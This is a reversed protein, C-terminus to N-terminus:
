AMTEGDAEGITADGVVEMEVDADGQAASDRSGGDRTSTSAGEGAKGNMAAAAAAGSKDKRRAGEVPAPDTYEDNVFWKDVLRSLGEEEFDQTLDYYTPNSRIRKSLYTWAILDMMDRKRLDPVIPRNIQPRPPAIRTKLMRTLADQAPTTSRRSLLAPLSSELPLGDNLVRTIIMQQEAQCMVFMRGSAAHPSASTTAYGQMRVLELRSYNVIQRDARHRSDSNHADSYHAYQAGMLVVTQGRLPLTWCSERPAILARIIGSAFLELVLALDHPAMRPVIYGIGHLLPELLAQDRLRQVLPEVDARPAGLFGNLDMETGSQTVLDAAVSRAAWHSPVFLIAGGVSSKLIDYAPKIMAKLLTSSHPITFTKLSLTIPTGRDSPYFAFRSAEDVCLWSALDSPDNLSSAIGFVRTRAPKAVTLVATVALEYQEDLLHLDELVFLSQQRLFATAKKRDLQLVESPSTVLIQRRSSSAKDFDSLKILPLVSIKRDAPAVSRIRAATEQVSRRSPVIVLVSADPEHRFAHRCSDAFSDL